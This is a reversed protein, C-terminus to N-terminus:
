SQRQSVRKAGVGGTSCADDRDASHSRVLGSTENHEGNTSVRRPTVSGTTTERPTTPAKGFDQGPGSGPALSRCSQARTDPCRGNTVEPAFGPLQRMREPVTVHTRTTARIEARCKERAMPSDGSFPTPIRRNSAAPNLA